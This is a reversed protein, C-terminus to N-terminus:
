RRTAQCGSRSCGRLDTAVNELDMAGFDVLGTVRSTPVDSEAACTEGGQLPPTLPPPGPMFPRRPTGLTLDRTPLSGTVGGLGGKALPPFTTTTGTGNTEEFLIHEPRVDRICPQIPVRLACARTLPGILGPADRRAADLWGRAPGHLPDGDGQQLVSALADFGDRLLHEVERLRARIGGSPGVIAPAHIAQHFAGLAAFASRVHGASPPRALDPAGPLWRTLEWLLGCSVFTRGDRTAIPEPIFGLRGASLLWSHIRALADESPGDVPWARLVLRGMGSDFRWFRAGSFGGANGLPEPEDLPQTLAPYRSLVTKLDGTM